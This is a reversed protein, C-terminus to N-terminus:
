YGVFNTPKNLINNEARRITIRILYNCQFVVILTCYHLIIDISIWLGPTTQCLQFWLSLSRKNLDQYKSFKSFRPYQEWLQPELHIHCLRPGTALDLMTREGVRDSFPLLNMRVNSISISNCQCTYRLTYKFHLLHTNRRIGFIIHLLYTNAM